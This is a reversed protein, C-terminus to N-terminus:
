RNKVQTVEGIHGYCVVKSVKKTFYVVL